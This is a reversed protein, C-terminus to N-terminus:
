LDYEKTKNMEDEHKKMREITEQEHKRFGEENRIVTKLYYEASAFSPFVNDVIEDLGSSFHQLVCWGWM